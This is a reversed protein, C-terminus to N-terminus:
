EENKTAGVVKALADKLYNLTTKNEQNSENKRLISRNTEVRKFKNKIEELQQNKYNEDKSAEVEIFADSSGVYGSVM